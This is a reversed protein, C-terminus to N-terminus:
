AESKAAALAKRTEWAKRAAESRFVAAAREKRTAAARTAIESKQQASMGGRIKTWAQRAIERFAATVEVGATIPACNYGCALAGHKGVHHTERETLQSRDCRELVEFTWVEPGHKAFAARLVPQAHSRRKLHGLHHGLRRRLNSAQGVYSKGTSRNHLRYIGSTIPTRAVALDLASYNAPAM